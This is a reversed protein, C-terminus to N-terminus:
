RVTAPVRDGILQLVPQRAIMGYMTVRGQAFDGGVLSPNHQAMEAAPIEKRPDARSRAPM